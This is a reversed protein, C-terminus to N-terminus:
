GVQAAGSGRRRTPKDQPPQSMEPGPRSSRAHSEVTDVIRQALITHRPQSVITSVENSIVKCSLTKMVYSPKVNVYKGSHEWGPRGLYQEGWGTNSSFWISWVPFSKILYINRRRTIYSVHVEPVIAYSLGTNQDLFYQRSEMEKLFIYFKNKQYQLWQLSIM